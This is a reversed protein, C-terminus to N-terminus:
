PSIGSKICAIERRKTTDEVFANNVNRAALIYARILTHVHVHILELLLPRENCLEGVGRCCFYYTLRGAHM